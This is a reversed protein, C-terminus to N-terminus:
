WCKIDGEEVLRIIKYDLDKVKKMYALAKIESVFVKAGALEECVIVEDKNVRAIYCNGSKIIFLDYVNM